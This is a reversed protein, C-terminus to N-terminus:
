APTALQGNANTQWAQLLIPFWATFTEPEERLWKELDPATLWMFASVEEPAPFIEGNWIGEFIHDYEHEILGEGVEARYLLRTIPTLATDIGLEERLRRHAATLTPEGPAPHSCCANSWLGGSHYKNAARQQLLIKGRSNIIFISLARHLTGTSHAAHKDAHGIWEDQGNVLIVEDRRLTM